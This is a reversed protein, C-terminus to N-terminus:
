LLGLTIVEEIAATLKKREQLFAHFKERDNILPMADDSFKQV